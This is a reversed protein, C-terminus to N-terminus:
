PCSTPKDFGVADINKAADAFNIGQYKAHLMACYLEQATAQWITAGQVEVAALSVFQRPNRGPDQDYYGELSFGSPNVMTRTSDERLHWGGEASVEWRSSDAGFLRAAEEPTTPWSVQEPPTVPTATSEPTPTSSVDTPTPTQTPDPESPQVLSGACGSALIAILLVFAVLSYLIKKM